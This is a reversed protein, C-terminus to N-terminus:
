GCNRSRRAILDVIGADVEDVGQPLQALDPQKGSMAGAKPSPSWVPIRSLIM